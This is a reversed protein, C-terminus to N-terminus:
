QGARVLRQERLEAEARPRAARWRCPSRDTPRAPLRLPRDRLAGQDDIVLRYLYVGDEATRAWFLAGGELPNVPGDDGFMSDMM